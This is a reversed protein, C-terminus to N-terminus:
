YAEACVLSILYIYPLNESAPRKNKPKKDGDEERRAEQEDFSEPRTVDTQSM